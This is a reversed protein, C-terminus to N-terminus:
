ERPPESAARADWGAGLAKILQVSSSLRQGVLQASSLENVLLTRQADTVQLYSILGQKYQTESLTVYERASAVAKAQADTAEARLHLDNLADEVDRFAGLV